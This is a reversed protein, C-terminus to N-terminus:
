PAATGRCAHALHPCAPMRGQSPRPVGTSVAAAWRERSPRSASPRRNLGCCLRLLSPRPDVSSQSGLDGRSSRGVKELGARKAKAVPVEDSHDAQCLTMGAGGSQEPAIAIRRDGAGAARAQAYPRRPQM